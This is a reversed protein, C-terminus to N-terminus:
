TGGLRVQRRGSPVAACATGQNEIESDVFSSSQAAVLFHMARRRVPVDMESFDIPRIIDALARRKQEEHQEKTFGMEAKAKVINGFKDFKEQNKDKKEIEFGGVQFGAMLMEQRKRKEEEKKKKEGEIKAKRAEEEERRREEEERRREAM